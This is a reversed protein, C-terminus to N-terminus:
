LISFSFIILRTNFYFLSDACKPSVYWTLFINLTNGLEADDFCSLDTMAFSLGTDVWDYKSCDDNGLEARNCLSVVLVTAFVFQQFRQLFLSSFFRQLSLSSSFSAKILRVFNRRFFSLLTISIALFLWFRQLSKVLFIAQLLFLFSYFAM